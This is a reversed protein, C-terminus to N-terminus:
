ADRVGAPGGPGPAFLLGQIRILSSVHIIRERKQGDLLSYTRFGGEVEKAFKYYSIRVVLDGEEFIDGNFLYIYKEREADYRCQKKEVVYPVCLLLVLYYLGELCVEDSAVRTAALKGKKCAAAWLQLSELQRLGSNQNKERPVKVRRVEGFVAKMKCATYNGATCPPCACVNSRVTIPGNLRAEEADAGLGAFLHCEHSDKFGVARPVNLVTFQRHEYITAGSSAVM